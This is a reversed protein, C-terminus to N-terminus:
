EVLVSEATRDEHRAAVMGKYSAYLSRVPRSSPIPQIQVIAIEVDIRCRRRASTVAAVATVLILYREKHM